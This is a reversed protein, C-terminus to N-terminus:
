KKAGVKEILSKLYDEWRIEELNPFSWDAHPQFRNDISLTHLNPAFNKLSSLMQSEMEYPSGVFIALDFKKGNLSWGEEQLLNVIDVLPAHLEPKVNLELFRKHSAATAILTIGKNTLEIVYEALSKEKLELRKCEIGAIIVPCESRNIIKATEDAKVWLGEGPGPGTTRLFPSVKM